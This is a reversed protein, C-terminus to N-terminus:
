MDVHRNNAKRSLVDSAIFAGTYQSTQLPAASSSSSDSSCICKSMLRSSAFTNLQALSRWASTGGTLGWLLPHRRWTIVPGRKARHLEEVYYQVSV